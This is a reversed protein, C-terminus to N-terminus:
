NYASETFIKNMFSAFEKDKILERINESLTFSNYQYFYGLLNEDNNLKPEPHIRMRQDAGGKTGGFCIAGIQCFFTLNLLNIISLLGKTALKV